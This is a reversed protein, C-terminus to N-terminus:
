FAMLVATLVLVVLLNRVTVLGLRRYLDQEASCCSLAACIMNRLTSLSFAVPNKKKNSWDHAFYMHYSSGLDDEDAKSLM